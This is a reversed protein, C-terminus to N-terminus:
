LQGCGFTIRGFSFEDFLLLFICGFNSDFKHDTCCLLSYFAAVFYFFAPCVADFICGLAFFIDFNDFIVCCVFGFLALFVNHLCTTLTSAFHQRKLLLCGLIFRLARSFYGFDAVLELYLLGLLFCLGDLINFQTLPLGFHVCGSDVDFSGLIAFLHSIFGILLDLFKVLLHALCM